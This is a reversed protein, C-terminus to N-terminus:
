EMAEMFEFYTHVGSPLDDFHYGQKVREFFFYESEHKSCYEEGFVVADFRNKFCPGVNGVLRLTKVGDAKRAVPEYIGVRYGTYTCNDVKVTGNVRVGLIRPMKAM